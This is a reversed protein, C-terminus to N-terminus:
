NSLLAQTEKLVKSGFSRVKSIADMVVCNELNPAEVDALIGNNLKGAELIDKVAKWYELDGLISWYAWDSQCEDIQKQYKAIMEDTKELTTEIGKQNNLVSFDNNMVGAIVSTLGKPAYIKDIADKVTM